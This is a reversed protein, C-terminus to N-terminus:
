KKAKADFRYSFSLAVYRSFSDYWTETREYANYTSAFTRKQNFIDSASLSLECKNKFFTYAVSARSMVRHRNMGSSNYGSRFEDAIRVYLRFPRLDARVSAGMEMYLTSNDYAADTYRYRNWRLNNFVSVNMKDADYSLELRDTLSFLRQRNLRLTRDDDVQTMYGYSTNWAASADNKVRFCVGIGQDYMLGVKYRDGGRVTMLQKEYAGTSTDYRYLAAMQNIYKTYEVNFGLTIQQRLWLRTYEYKTTHSHADPLAAGGVEVLLPDRTDRWPLMRYLDRVYSEYSFSLSMNRKRDLKWKLTASPSFLNTTRVATTDLRGYKMDGDDRVLFWTFAPAFTLKKSLYIYMSTRFSNYFRRLVYDMSNDADLTTPRGGIVNAEDADSFYSRREHNRIYSVGDSVQLYVKESLWYSLEAQINTELAKTPSDGFQWKKEGKGERVYELSRTISNENDEGSMITSGTVAFTGKSGIYHTWDYKAVLKRRESESSNYYRNRTVIRDYLGGGPVATMLEDLSGVTAGGGLYSVGDTEGLARRKEYSALVNFKVTNKPDAYAFLDVQLQPKLSHNSNSNRSLSFTRDSGPFFTEKTYNDSGHGDAHGLSASVAVRNNSYGEAGKTTWDHEFNYAGFMDKGYKDVIDNVWSGDERETKQNIDNAKFYVIQPNKNSLRNAQVKGLYRGANISSVEVDGYWKDLFGKKVQIDLVHDENGDDKGTHRALESKRDYLKIKGAVEAPLQGIIGDGGFMDRGNVMLRVPKGNWTLKGSESRVGPLKRILEALRDGDKMKFASPNFVITDGSMTIRPVSAKVEVEQLMLATPQLKITGVNLTDSREKGYVYNVKRSTKYGIMSFSLIIRGEHPTDLVFNGVSDTEVFDEYSGGNPRYIVDKVIAMKLPEGTEANVVRGKVADASAVLPCLACLIAFIILTKIKM